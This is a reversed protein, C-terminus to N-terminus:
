VGCGRKHAHPPIIKPEKEGSSFTNRILFYSIIIRICFNLETKVNTAHPCAAAEEGGGLLRM